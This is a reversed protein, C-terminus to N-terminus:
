DRDCLVYNLMRSTAGMCDDVAEQQTTPLTSREDGFFASPNTTMAGFGGGKACTKPKAWGYYLAEDRTIRRAEPIARAFRDAGALPDVVYVVVSDDERTERFYALGVVQGRRGTMRAGYAM